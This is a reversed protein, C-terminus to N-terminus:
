VTMRWLQTIEAGIYFPRMNAKHLRTHILGAKRYRNLTSRGIDLRECTTKTDYRGNPAVKPEFQTM